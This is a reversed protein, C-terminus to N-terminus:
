PGSSLTWVLDVRYVEGSQLVRLTSPTTVTVSAAGFGSAQFAGQGQGAAASAVIVPSASDMACAAACDLSPAGGAGSDIATFSAGASSLTLSGAPLTRGGAVYGPGTDSGCTANPCYEAFM